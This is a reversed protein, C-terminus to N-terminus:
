ARPKRFLVAFNTSLIYPWFRFPINRWSNAEIEFYKRIIGPTLWHKHAPSKFPRVWFVIRALTNVLENPVTICALGGPKLLREIERILVSPVEMHELVESCIITDFSTDPFPLRELDSLVV